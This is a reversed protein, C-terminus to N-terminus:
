IKLTLKTKNKTVDTNISIRNIQKVARHRVRHFNRATTSNFVFQDVHNFHRDVFHFFEEILFDNRSRPAHNSPKIPKQQIFVFVNTM